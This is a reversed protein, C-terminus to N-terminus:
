DHKPPVLIFNSWALFHQVLMIINSIGQLFFFCALTNPTGIEKDYEVCGLENNVM